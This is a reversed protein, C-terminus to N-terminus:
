SVEQPPLPLIHPNFLGQPDLHRRLGYILTEAAQSLSDRFLAGKLRGIGHEAALSGSYRRVHEHVIATIRAPDHHAGPSVNFHVNGDGAHGFPNVLLGPQAAALAVTTEDIFAPIRAVPVAVDHKIQPGHRRQGEVVAERLHWFAEAQALSAALHGDTVWGAELADEFLALLQGETTEADSGTLEILVCWEPPAGFPVHTEPIHAQALVIGARSMFEIREVAPGLAKARRVLKPLAALGSLACLATATAAPRPHLALTAATILGFAGESGIFLQAMDPGFNNKPLGGASALITGDPLVAEIGRVQARMMGFRMAHSGGANTAILGGIQATGESGLRLGIRLDATGALAEAAALPTGAGVTLTAEEPDLTQPALLRGTQLLVGAADAGPVSGGVLGTNGGQVSLPVRAGRCLRIVGAAEQATAPRAIARARGRWEGRWDTLYPAMEAPDTILGADGLVSALSSVLDPM